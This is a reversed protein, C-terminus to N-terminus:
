HKTIVQSVLVLLWVGFVQFGASFYTEPLSSVTFRSLFM